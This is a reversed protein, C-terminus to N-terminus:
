FKQLKPHYKFKTFMITPIQIIPAMENSTVLNIIFVHSSIYSVVFVYLKNIDALLLFLSFVRM